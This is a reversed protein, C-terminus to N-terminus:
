VILSSLISWLGFRHALRRFWDLFSPRMPDFLLQTPTKGGAIKPDIYHKLTVADSSHGLSATADGGAAKYYSAHSKRLAHFKLRRDQPIGAAAIIRNLHHYLSTAIVPALPRDTPNAAILRAIARATSPRIPRTTERDHGGKRFRFTLELRELDIDRRELKHIAGIREGTDWIIAFVAPFFINEPVGGISHKASLAARFLNRIQHDLMAKPTGPKQHSVTFRLPPVLGLHAAYKGLAALKAAEHELTAEAIQRGRVTDGRRYRMFGVLNRDTFDVAEVSKDLYRGFHALAYRLLRETGKSKIRPNNALYEGLLEEGSM